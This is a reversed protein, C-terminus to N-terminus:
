QTSQGDDARALLRTLVRDFSSAFAHKDRQDFPRNRGVVEGSGRLDDMFDRMSLRSRVNDAHLEEGRPDIVDVANEVLQAALPIDATIVLDGPTANHVIYMDAENAGHAVTIISVSPANHPAALSQNAVVRVDLRKRRAARFVVDKIERPAADGDIWIKM